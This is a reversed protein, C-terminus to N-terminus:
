VFPTDYFKCNVGASEIFNLLVPNIKSKPVIDSCTFHLNLNTGMKFKLFSLNVALAYTFQDVKLPATRFEGQFDHSKNTEYPNLIPVEHEGFLPGNGHRTTYTRSVFHIESDVNIYKVVNQLTTNSRTVNPFFGFHQDLMTGQSSEFVFNLDKDEMLLDLSELSVNGLEGFEDISDMFHAIQKEIYKEDTFGYYKAINRLKYDLGELCNLDTMYIGYHDLTRQVTAGFGMGVSGNQIMKANKRNFDIDFPTTLMVRNETAYEPVYGLEKLIKFERVLSPIYIACDSTVLTKAGFFTGSGVQSFVHSIETGDPKKIMVTHGAQAGGNFKVVWTKNDANLEKVLRATTIGKGSDGFGLDIVFKRM